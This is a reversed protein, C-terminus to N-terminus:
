VLLPANVTVNLVAGHASNPKGAVHSLDLTVTSGASMAGAADMGTGSRTDLVRVPDVPAFTTQGGIATVAGTPPPSSMRTAVPVAPGLLFDFTVWMRDGRVVVGVGVRNYNGVMNSFHGPSSVFANHLSLVDGGVGINEAGGQWNPEIADLGHALDPRHCLAVKSCDTAGATYVVGTADFVDAMHTSWAVALADLAADRSLEARANSARTQNLLGFLEAGSATPDPTANAQAIPAAAIGGLALLLTTM